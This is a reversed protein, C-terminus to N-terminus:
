KTAFPPLINNHVSHIMVSMISDRKGEMVVERVDLRVNLVVFVATGFIGSFLLEVGAFARNMRGFVRRLRTWLQPVPPLAASM